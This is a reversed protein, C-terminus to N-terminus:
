VLETFKILLSFFAFVLFLLQAAAGLFLGSSVMRKSRNMARLAEDGSREGAKKLATLKSDSDGMASSAEMRQITRSPMLGTNFSQAFTYQGSAEKEAIKSLHWKVYPPATRSIEFAARRPNYLRGVLLSMMKVVKMGNLYTYISFPFLRQIKRRVVGSGNPLFWMFFLVGIILAVSLTIVWDGVLSYSQLFAQSSSPWSEVPLMQTFRPLVGNAFGICVFLMAVFSIAPYVAAKSFDKKTKSLEQEIKMYDSVMEKLSDSKEGTAFVTIVEEDFWPEMGKAISEGSVVSKRIAAAAKAEPSKGEGAEDKSSMVAECARRVNGSDELWTEFDEIFELQKKRGFSLRRVFRQAKHVLEADIGLAAFVDDVRIM